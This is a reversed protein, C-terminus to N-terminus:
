AQGSQGFSLQDIELEFSCEKIEQHEEQGTRWKELGNKFILIL